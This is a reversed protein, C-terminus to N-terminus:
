TLLYTLLYSSTMTIADKRVGIRKAALRSSVSLTRAKHAIAKNESYDIDRIFDNAIIKL